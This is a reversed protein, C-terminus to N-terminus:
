DDQKQQLALEDGGLFCSCQIYVNTRERSNNRLVVKLESRKTIEMYRSM